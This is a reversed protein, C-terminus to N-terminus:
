LARCCALAYLSAPCGQALVEACKNLTSGSTIVDDVLLVTKDELSFGKRLTFRKGELSKRQALTLGAQSYDGSERQLVDWVPIMLIKSMEGALLASQNYGRDFWHTLSLPVPIIVDPLPWNLHTFQAVLFAGLGEALYPQNGYKLRKILAAAPGIYDFAAGIGTFLTHGERCNKCHKSHDANRSGFCSFCREEPNILELLSLCHSCLWPQDHTTIENCNVCKPPYVLYLFSSKLNQWGNLIDM